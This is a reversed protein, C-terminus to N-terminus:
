GSAAARDIYRKRCLHSSDPRGLATGGRGAGIRCFM